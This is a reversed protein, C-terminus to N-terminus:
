GYLGAEPVTYAFAAYVVFTSCTFICLQMVGQWPRGSKVAGRTGECDSEASLFIQSRVACKIGFSPRLERLSGLLHIHEGMQMLTESSQDLEQSLM